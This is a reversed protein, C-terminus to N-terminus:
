PTTVLLNHLNSDQEPYKEQTINKRWENSKGKEGNQRTTIKIKRKNELSQSM